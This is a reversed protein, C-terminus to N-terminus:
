SYDGTLPEHGALRRLAHNLRDALARDGAFACADRARLAGVTIDVTDKDDAEGEVDVFLLEAELRYALLLANGLFRQRRAMEFAGAGFSALGGALPFWTTLGFETVTEADTRSALSVLAVVLGVAAVAFLLAIVARSVPARSSYSM